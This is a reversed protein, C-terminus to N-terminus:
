VDEAAAIIADIAADVGERRATDRFIADVHETDWGLQRCLSARAEIYARKKEARRMHKCCRRRYHHDPCTCAIAVDRHMTVTYAREGNDSLIVM